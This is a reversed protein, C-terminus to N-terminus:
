HNVKVTFRGTKELSQTLIEAVAAETDGYHTPSYWLEVPTTGAPKGAAALYKDVLSKGTPAPAGKRATTPPPAGAGYAQAGKLASSKDYLKVRIRKTKPATGWYTPNAEFDILERERYATVRYPGTGVITDTRYKAKVAAGTEPGSLVNAAYAAPSVISAVS